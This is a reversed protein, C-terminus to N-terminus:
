PPPLEGDELFRLYRKEDIVATGQERAKKLKAPGANEGVVIFLLKKTVSSTVKLKAELALAGLREKDVVSFGTFCVEPRHDLPTARHQSYVWAWGAQESMRAIEEASFPSKSRLIRMLKESMPTETVTQDSTTVSRWAINRADLERLTDAWPETTLLGAILARARELKEDDCINGSCLTQPTSFRSALTRCSEFGIGHLYGERKAHSLMDVRKVSELLRLLPLATVRGKPVEPRVGNKGLLADVVELNRKEGFFQHISDSAKIGIEDILCPTRLSTGRLDNLTGYFAALDKATAEGVHRIGLAFILKALPRGRSKEISQLLNSASLSQLTTGGALRLGVLDTQQLSYLNAPSQIVNQEVLADVVEVGLGEIDM